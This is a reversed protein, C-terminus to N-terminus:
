QYVAFFRRRDADFLPERLSFFFIPFNISRRVAFEADAVSAANGYATGTRARAGDVPRGSRYRHRKQERRLGGPDRACFEGSYNHLEAPVPRGSFHL